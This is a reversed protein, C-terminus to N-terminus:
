GRTSAGLEAIKQKIRSAAYVDALKTIVTMEGTYERKLDEFFPEYRMWFAWEPDKSVARKLYDIAEPWDREHAYTKALEFYATANNPHALIEAQHLERARRILRQYEAENGQQEEILALNYVPDGSRPARACAEVLAQRAADIQNLSLYSWGLADHVTSYM